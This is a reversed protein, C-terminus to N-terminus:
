KKTDTLRNPDFITISPEDTFSGDIWEVSDFGNAKALEIVDSNNDIGKTKTGNIFLEDDVFNVKMSKGADVKFRKVIGGLGTLAEANQAYEDAYRKTKTLWIGDSGGSSISGIKDLDFKDWEGATGHYFENDDLIDKKGSWTEFTISDENRLENIRSELNTIGNSDNVQKNAERRKLGGDTLTKIEDRYSQTKLSRIKANISKREVEIKDTRIKFEELTNGVSGGFSRTAFLNAKSVPTTLIKATKLGLLDPIVAAVGETLAGALPGFRENAASGARKQLEEFRKSFEGIPSGAVAEGFAQLGAKGEETRPQFTLAEQIGKVARAGAGPEAFPNASQVLGAIGSIPEAAAGTAITTFVEEAATAPRVAGPGFRESALPQLTQRQPVPQPMAATPEAVTRLDRFRNQLFTRIDNIPMEDPFQAVGVGKINVHPM